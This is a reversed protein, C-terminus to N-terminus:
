EGEADEGETPAAPDPPEAMTDSGDMGDLVLMQEPLIAPGSTDLTATPVATVGSPQLLLAPVVAQRAAIAGVKMLGQRLAATNLTGAGWAYTSAGVTELSGLFQLVSRETTLSSLVPALLGELVGRNPELVPDGGALTIVSELYALHSEHRDHLLRLAEEAAADYDIRGPLAVDGDVESDDGLVIAYVQVAALEFSRHTRAVVANQLDGDEPSTTQAPGITTTAQEPTTVGTESPPAEEEGSGCAALVAAALVTGGGLRLFQRRGDATVPGEDDRALIRSATTRWQALASRPTRQAAQVLEDIEDPHM